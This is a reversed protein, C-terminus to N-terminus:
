VNIYKMFASYREEIISDIKGKNMFWSNVHYSHRELANIVETADDKDISFVVLVNNSASIPTVSLLSIKAEAGEVINALESLSYNRYNVELELIAGGNGVPFIEFLRNFVDKQMIAGCYNNKNDVVPLLETEYTNFTRIAEWIHDTDSISVIQFLDDNQSLTSSENLILIDEKKYIGLKGDINAPLTDINYEDMLNLTDTVSNSQKLLPFSINTFDKTLM